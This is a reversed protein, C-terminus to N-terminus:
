GMRERKRKVESYQFMKYQKLPTNKDRFSENTILKLLLRIKLATLIFQSSKYTFVM